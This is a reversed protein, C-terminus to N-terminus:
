CLASSYPAFPITKNIATQRRSASVQVGQGLLGISMSAYTMKEMLGGMMGSMMGGGM